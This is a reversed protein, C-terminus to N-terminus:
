NGLLIFIFVGGCIAIYKRGKGDGIASELQAVIFTTIDELIIQLRSPNDVSLKSRIILGVM